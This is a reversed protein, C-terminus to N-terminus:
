PVSPSPSGAPRAGQPPQGPKVAITLIRAGKPFPYAAIGDIIGDRRADDANLVVTRRVYIEAESETLHSREKLTARMLREYADLKNVQEHLREVSVPGNSVLAAAHFLFTGREQSYRNQAHLFIYTAASAVVGVNYVKFTIGNQDHQRIMYDVIGQASDIDGGQSNMALEIDKAGANRFKDVDAIFLDRSVPAIPANFLLYATNGIVSAEPAMPLPQPPQCGALTLLAVM